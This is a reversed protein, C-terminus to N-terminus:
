SAPEPWAYVVIEVIARRPIAICGVFRDAADQRSSCVVIRDPDQLALFGTTSHALMDATSQLGLQDLDVWGEDSAIISDVWRVRAILTPTMM